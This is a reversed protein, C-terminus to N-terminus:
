GAGEEPTQQYTALADRALQCLGEITVSEVAIPDAIQELAEALADAQATARNARAAEARLDRMWDADDKRAAELAEDREAVLNDIAVRAHRLADDPKMGETLAQFAEGLPREEGCKCTDFTYGCDGCENFRDKGREPAGPDIM